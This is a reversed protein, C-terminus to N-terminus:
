QDTDKDVSILSFKSSSFEVPKDTPEDEAEASDHQIM